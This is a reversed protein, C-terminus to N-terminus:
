DRRLKREDRKYIERRTKTIEVVVVIFITITKSDLSKKLFQSVQVFDNIDVDFKLKEVHEINAISSFQRRIKLDRLAKLIHHEDNKKKENRQFKQAFRISQRFSRTIVVFFRSDYFLTRSVFQSQKRLRESKNKFSAVVDHNTTSTDISRAITEISKRDKTRSRKAISVNNM